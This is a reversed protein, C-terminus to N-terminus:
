SFSITADTKSSVALAMWLSTCNQGKDPVEINSRVRMGTRREYVRPACACRPNTQTHTGSM